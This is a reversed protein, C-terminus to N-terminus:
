EDSQEKLAAKYLEAKRQWYAADYTLREVEAEEKVLSEVAIACARAHSNSEERLREVEAELREYGACLHVRQQLADIHRQQQEVEARLEAKERTLIRAEECLAGCSAAVRDLLERTATM